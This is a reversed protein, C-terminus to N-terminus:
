LEPGPQLNYDTNYGLAWQKHPTYDLHHSPINTEKSRGLPTFLSMTSVCHLWCEQLMQTFLPTM